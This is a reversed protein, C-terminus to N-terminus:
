AARVMPQPTTPLWPDGNFAQALAPLVDVDNKRVTSIYSRLACFTEAGALTRWGGSIKQQLKIMRIDREALNNDFPVAFDVAFRLVDDRYDDLRALLNAAKSKATRGRKGSRPPPPNAAHGAAVATAYRRHVAALTTADLRDTGATKAADVAELTECLLTAMDDAWGQGPQETAATLERLHHANCLGHVLSQYHRYPKWGDHVAVGTFDSLVGAADMAETGRRPHVTYLTWRDTSASHVWHLKGAVRAGTEDFHAVGADALADRVADLFPSLRGAAETMISTLTGVSVPAALVDSLLRAARDYPLHQYNLLYVALARVQPGYSAPGRAVAPFDAATVTGCGCRRQEVRHETVELRLPPIDFVQRAQVGAVEADGLGADCSSCTKPAHVVVTDPDDVKALHKGPAGPQKGPKRGSPKRRSKPAPKTYGESSPPKSSNRPNQDLRAALEAVQRHLAAIEADREDVRVHLAAVEADREALRTQLAAIETDREAVRVRLLANEAELRSPREV